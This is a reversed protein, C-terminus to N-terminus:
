NLPISRFHPTGLLRAVPLPGDPVHEPMELLEPIRHLPEGDTKKRLVSLGMSVPYGLTECPLKRPTDLTLVEFRSNVSLQAVSCGVGDHLLSDHMLILGGPRLLPEFHALEWSSQAYTHVSDIVLIDFRCGLIEALADQSAKPIWHVFSQLESGDWLHPLVWPDVTTVQGGGNDRVAAALHCTSYGLYTGTELIQRAGVMRALWYWSRCVPLETHCNDFRGEPLEFCGSVPDYSEDLALFDPPM